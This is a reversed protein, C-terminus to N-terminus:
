LDESQEDDKVPRLEEETRQISGGEAGEIRIDYWQVRQERKGIGVVKAITWEGLFSKFEVRDGVKFKPGGTKPRAESNPATGKAAKQAADLDAPITVVLNAGYVGNSTMLPADGSHPAFTIKASAAREPDQPKTTKETAAVQLPIISGNALQLSVKATYTGLPVDSIIRDGRRMTFPKATRLPRGPKGNMLPGAPTLTVLFKADPMTDALRGDVARADIEVIGGFYSNEDSRDKIATIPGSVKLVFNYTGGKASDFDDNNEGVLYLPLRYARGGYNLPYISDRVSYNGGPLRLSYRGDAGTRTNFSANRGADTTGYVRIQVGALPQGEPTTARGTVYGPKAVTAVCFALLTSILPM